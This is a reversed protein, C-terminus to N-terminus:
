KTQSQKDTKRMYTHFSAMQYGDRRYIGSREPYGSSRRRLKHVGVDKCHNLAYNYYIEYESAGRDGNVYISRCWAKWFPMNYQKEVEDFLDKMIARQFLMHHNVSNYGVNVRQYSPVFREAHRLYHGKTDRHDNICLKGAHTKPDLFSVKNLFVTDADIILVNSSIGPIVFPAYMKLMQQYYWGANHARSFFDVIMEPDEHGIQMRIDDKSFPYNKEDYWETKDSLPESSVVIVRGVKEACNKRIGDACMDITGKDKPHAVIVVDIRDNKFTYKKLQPTIKAETVGALLLGVAVFFRLLM